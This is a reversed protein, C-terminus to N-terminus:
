GYLHAARDYSLELSKSLGKISRHKKAEFTEKLRDPAIEVGVSFYSSCETLPLNTLAVVKCQHSTLSSLPLTKIAQLGEPLVM